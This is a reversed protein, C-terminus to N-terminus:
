YTGLVTSGLIVINTNASEECDHLTAVPYESYLHQLLYVLEDNATKLAGFRANDAPDITYDALAQVWVRYAIEFERMLTNNVWCIKLSVQAPAETQILEEFYRRFVINRFRDPNYPLVVSARFSYPDQEGCLHCPEGLCVELLNFDPPGTIAIVPPLTTGENCCGTVPSRASFLRTMETIRGAAEEATAFTAPGEAVPAATGTGGALLKYTNDNQKGARYTAALGLSPALLAAAAAAAIADPFDTRVSRLLQTNDADLVYFAYRQESVENGAEDTHTVLTSLLFIYPHPMQAKRPRLLIHEVLYLGEKGCPAGFFLALTNKANNADSLTPYSKGDTALLHTKTVPDDSVFLRYTDDAQKQAYYFATSSLGKATLSADAAAASKTPYDTKVSELVPAGEDDYFGFYYPATDDVGQGTVDAISHCFLFDALRSNAGPSIGSLLAASKELGSIHDRNWLATKDGQSLHTVPDPVPLGTVPDTVVPCYDMAKGRNASTDPFHALFGIKGSIIDGNSIAESQQLDFEVQYMMLVYNSFSTAFRALLHDLFSNRRDYFAQEPEVLDRWPQTTVQFGNLLNGAGVPDTYLETVDRIGDLFRPPAAEGLFQTFYTQVLTADISLLRKVGSLQSFFDALLQDFFLLYAKLQRKQAIRQPGASVPLGAIGTGYVQPLDNQVSYYDELDHYTGEPVPLDDEAGYRKNKEGTAQLCALTDRTETIRAKLPIKGKYFLIKSRDTNLIPKCGPPISLCWAESPLEPEGDQDYRTLMINRVARVGETGMIINVLDSTRIVKRLQAGDLETNDIFGHTLVPGDFIEDVPIGKGLLEKLSYFRVSPSFYEQIGYFVTATIKEIDADPAADIDACLAVDQDTVTALDRYDETLNRHSMLTQKARALTDTILRKKAQYDNLRNHIFDKTVLTSLYADATGLDSRNTLSDIRIVLKVLTTVDTGDKQYGVTLHCEWHYLGTKRPPVTIDRTATQYGSGTLAAVILAQDAPDAEELGYFLLTVVEDRLDGEPIRWTITSTNLDGWQPDSELDLVTRYLGSLRIRHDDPVIMTGDDISLQDRPCDAFFAVEQGVTEQDSLMWANQIGPLDVLLKRYDLITLPNVTLINKATYLCQDGPIKGDPGTLLDKIDFGTRYGLETIAYCLVELLTIGPDHANYDTWLDSSLSEIHRLGESRLLNFDQSPPVLNQKPITVTQNM